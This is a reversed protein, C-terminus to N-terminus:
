APDRVSHFARAARGSSSHLVRTTGDGCGAALYTGENSFRVCFVRAVSDESVDECRAEWLAGLEPLSLSSPHSAPQRPVDEAPSPDDPPEELALGGLAVPLDERAARAAAVSRLRPAKGSAARERYAIAAMQAAALGAAQMGAARGVAVAKAKQEFYTLPAPPRIESPPASYIRAKQVPASASAGGYKAMVRRARESPAVVGMDTSLDLLTEPDIGYDEPNM